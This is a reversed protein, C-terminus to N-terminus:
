NSSKCLQVFNVTPQCATLYCQSSCSIHWTVTSKKCCILPQNQFQGCVNTTCRSLTLNSNLWQLNTYCLKNYFVEKEDKAFAAELVNPLYNTSFLYNKHRSLHLKFLITKILDNYIQIVYSRILSKKKMKQCFGSVFHQTLLKLSNKMLLM